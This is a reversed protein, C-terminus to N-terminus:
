FRIEAVFYVNIGPQNQGSGHIRYAQDFLNEIGLTATFHEDAVWNAEIDVLGGDGNALMHAHLDILGPMLTRGGGDIVRAGPADIPEASIKAILNDEVLVNLGPALEEARGDFVNVNSFLIRAPAASEDSSASAAGLGVTLVLLLHLLAFISPTRSM